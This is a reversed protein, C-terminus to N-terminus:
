NYIYDYSIRRATKRMLIYFKSMGNPMTGMAAGDDWQDTEDHAICEGSPTFIQYGYDGRYGCDGDDYLEDTYEVNPKQKFIKILCGKHKYEKVIGYDEIMEDAMEKDMIMIRRRTAM